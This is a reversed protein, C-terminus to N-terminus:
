SIATIRGQADVTISNVPSYTGPTVATNALDITRSATIDGGGSLGVGATISVASHDVNRNSTTDLAIAGTGSNYNIGTGSSLAARARADTFFLKTGETINTTNLEVAEVDTVRGKADISATIFHSADGYDGAVVTTDALGLTYTSNAGGDTAELEGATPTLVREAGLSPQDGLVLFSANAVATYLNITDGQIAEYNRIGRPTKIFEQIADRPLLDTKQPDM